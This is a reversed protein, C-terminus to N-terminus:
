HAFNFPEVDRNRFARNATSRILNLFSLYGDTYRSFGATHRKLMDGWGDLTDSGRITYEHIARVAGAFDIELTDKDAGIDTLAWWQLVGILDGAYHFRHDTDIHGILNDQYYVEVWFGTYFSYAAPDDFIESLHKRLLDSCDFLGDVLPYNEAFIIDQYFEPLVYREKDSLM